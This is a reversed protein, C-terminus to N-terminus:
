SREPMHYTVTERYRQSPTECGRAIELQGQALVASAPFHSNTVSETSSSERGVTTEPQREGNDQSGTTELDLLSEAGTTVSGLEIVGETEEQHYTSELIVKEGKGKPFAIGESGRSVRM